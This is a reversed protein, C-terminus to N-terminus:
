RTAPIGIKKLEAEIHACTNFEQLALEPHSHFYCRQEFLYDKLSFSEDLVSM